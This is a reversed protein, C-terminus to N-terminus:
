VIIIAVQQEPQQSQPDQTLQQTASEKGSSREELRRDESQGTERTQTPTTGDYACLQSPQQIIDTFVQHCCIVLM